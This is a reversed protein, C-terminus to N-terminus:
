KESLTGRKLRDMIAVGLGEEPVSEVLLVEVGAAEAEYLAAFLNQAYDTLTTMRKNYILPKLAVGKQLSIAGLRKGLLVKQDLFTELGSGDQLQDPTVLIMKLSPLYHPHRLGPSGIANPDEAYSVALSTVSQIAEKTIVGPRLICLRDSTIDLVTSELGITCPGGDLIMEVSNGLEEQVHLASTPSIRGSRNASPAAIPEGLELILKLAMPHNPMRIAVTELGASVMAPVMDMRKLVLTLPGPWFAQILKDASSPVEKALLSLQNRDAIHVILPNDFPRGKIKYLRQIAHADFVRAGLGYVTETPFAVVGGQRLIAAAKKILEM